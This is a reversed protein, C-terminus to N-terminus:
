RPGTGALDRLLRASRLPRELHRGVLDLHFAELDGGGPPASAALAAPPTRFVQELFSRDEVGLVTGAAGRCLACLFGQAEIGYRLHGSPLAGFCAACRDLPPYLGHLRLLWAEMYRALAPGSGGDELTRLVACALRYVPDDAEGDQAFGDLLEAFYSVLLANELGRSSAPFASRVLECGGLRYLETGQRGYLAVKVESMPELASRYASRAARAGRAVARLKGRERTLLVVVKSSEGLPYTRLVLADSSIPPM